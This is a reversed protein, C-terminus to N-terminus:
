AVTVQAVQFDGYQFISERVTYRLDRHDKNEKAEQYDMTVRKGQCEQLVQYAQYVQQGRHGMDDMIAKHVETEKKV